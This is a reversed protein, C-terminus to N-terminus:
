HSLTWGLIGWENMITSNLFGKLLSVNMVNDNIENIRGDTYAYTLFIKVYDGDNKVYGKLSSRVVNSMMWVCIYKVNVDYELLREEKLFWMCLKM